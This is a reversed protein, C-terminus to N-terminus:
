AAFKRTGNPTTERRRSRASSNRASNMQINEIDAEIGRRITSDTKIQNPSVWAGAANNVLGSARNALINKQIGKRSRGETKDKRKRGGRHAAM